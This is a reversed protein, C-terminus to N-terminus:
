MHKKLVYYLIDTLTAYTKNKQTKTPQSNQNPIRSLKTEIPMHKVLVKQIKNKVEGETTKTSSLKVKSIM